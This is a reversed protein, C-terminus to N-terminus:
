HGIFSEERLYKGQRIEAYSDAFGGGNIGIGLDTNEGLLHAFGVEADLYVPALALRLTVNTRYINPLNAYYFAYASLPGKGEVPLNYGLQILERKTSDVQAHAVVTGLLLVLVLALRTVMNAGM